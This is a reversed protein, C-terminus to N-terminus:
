PRRSGPRVQGDRPNLIDTPPAPGGRGAVPLRAGRRLGTVLYAVIGLNALLVAIRLPGAGRVVEFAEYPVLFGTTVVVLYEAWRRRLLLGVGEAIYLLGYAVVGAGIADLRRETVGSLRALAAQLVRNDPDLRLRDALRVLGGAVDAPSLRLAVMGAAVLILAKGLKYVGIVQLGVPSGWPGQDQDAPLPNERFDREM